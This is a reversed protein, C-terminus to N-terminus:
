RLEKQKPQKNRNLHRCECDGGSTNRNIGGCTCGMVGADAGATIDSMAVENLRDAPVITKIDMLSFKNAQSM